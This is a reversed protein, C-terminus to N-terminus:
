DQLRAETGLRLARGGDVLLRNERNVWDLRLQGVYLEARKARTDTERVM